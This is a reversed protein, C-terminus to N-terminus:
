NASNKFSPILSVDTTETHKADSEKGELSHNFWTLTVENCHRFGAKKIIELTELSM